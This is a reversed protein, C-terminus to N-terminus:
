NSKIKSIIKAERLVRVVLTGSKVHCTWVGIAKSNRRLSQIYVYKNIACNFDVSFIIFAQTHPQVTRYKDITIMYVDRHAIFILTYTYKNPNNHINKCIIINSALLQKLSHM